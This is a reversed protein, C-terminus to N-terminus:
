RQLAVNLDDKEYFGEVDKLLEKGKKEYWESSKEFETSLWKSYAKKMKGLILYFIGNEGPSKLYATFRYAEKLYTVAKKQNGQKAYMISLYSKAIVRGKLLLSSDYLDDAQCFARFAQEEEGTGLYATALNMYFIANQPCGHESSIQLARVYNPISMKFNKQRRWAEGIYNYTAALNMGKTQRNLDMQALREKVGNLIDLSREYDGQMMKYMGEMRLFVCKQYLLKKEEILNLGRYLYEKLVDLQNTQIGYYVMLRDFNIRYEPQRGVWNNDFGRFIYKLGSEYDGRSICYCAKSYLFRGEMECAIEGNSLPSEKIWIGIRDLKNTVPDDSSNATMDIRQIFVPYIDYMQVILDELSRLEYYYVKRENGACEFHYVMRRYRNGSLQNEILEELALAIRNHYIKKKSEELIKYVYEKFYSNEYQFYTHSNYIIEEIVGQNKLQCLTDFFDVFEKDYVKSMLDIGMGVEMVSLMSLFHKQTNDFKQWKMEMMKESFLIEFDSGKKEYQTIIEKIARLSGRSYRYLEEKLQEPFRRGSEKELEQIYSKLLKKSLPKVEVENLNGRWVFEQLIDKWEIDLEDSVTMIVYVNPIAMRLLYMIVRFSMQDANQINTIAIIIHRESSLSLLVECLGRQFNQFTKSEFVEEVLEPFTGTSSQFIDLVQEMSNRYREPLHIQQKEICRIIQQILVSWPQMMFKKETHLCNTQFVFRKEDKTDALFQKLLYEKGVNEMGTILINVPTDDLFTDYLYYLQQLEKAQYRRVFESESEWEKESPEESSEDIWQNSIDRYLRVTEKGPSIGLEDNFLRELKKYLQTSKYYMGNEAYAKILQYYVEEDLPNQSLYKEALNEMEYIEESTCERLKQSLKALYMRQLSEQQEEVWEEFERADKVYLNQLFKDQYVEINGAEVLQTYTNEIECESSLELCERDKAYIVPFGVKKNVVYIANRLDKRATKDEKEAWLIEIAQSRNISKKVAILFFLAEAKKYPFNIEIGDFVAKTNGFVNIELRHM